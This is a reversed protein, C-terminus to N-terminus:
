IYYCRARCRPKLPVAGLRGDIQALVRDAEIDSYAHEGIRECEDLLNANLTAFLAPLRKPDHLSMQEDQYGM